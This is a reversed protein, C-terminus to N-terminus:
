LVFKSPSVFPARMFHISNILLTHFHLEEVLFDCPGSHMKGVSAHRDREAENTCRLFTFAATELRMTLRSYNEHKTSYMFHPKTTLKLTTTITYCCVSSLRFALICSVFVRSALVSRTQEVNYSLRTSYCFHFFFFFIHLLLLLM